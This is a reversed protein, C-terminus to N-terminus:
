FLFINKIWQLESFQLGNLDMVRYEKNIIIDNENVFAFMLHYYGSVISNEFKYDKYNELNFFYIDKKTTIAIYESNIYIDKKTINKLILLFKDQEENSFSKIYVNLIEINNYTETGFEFLPAIIEKNNAFFKIDM